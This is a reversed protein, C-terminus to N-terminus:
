DLAALPDGGRVPAKVPGFAIMARELEASTSELAAKASARDRLEAELADAQTRLRDTALMVPEVLGFYAVLVVVLASIWKGSRPLSGWRQRVTALVSM